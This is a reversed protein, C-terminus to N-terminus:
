VKNGRVSYSSKHNYNHQYTKPDLVVVEGPLYDPHNVKYRAGKVGNLLGLEDAKRALSQYWIRYEESTIINRQHKDLKTAVSMTSGFSSIMPKIYEHIGYYKSEPSWDPAKNNNMKKFKFYEMHNKDSDKIRIKKRKRIIIVNGLSDKYYNNNDVSKYTEKYKKSRRKNIIEKNDHYYAKHRNNISDRNKNYHERRKALIEERNRSYYTSPVEIEKM